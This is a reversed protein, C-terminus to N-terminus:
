RMVINSRMSVACAAHFFPKLNYEKKGATIADVVQDCNLDVFFDPAESADDAIRDEASEFLISYFTPPRGKAAFDGPAAPQRSRDLDVIKQTTSDAM